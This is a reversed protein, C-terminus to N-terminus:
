PRRAKAMVGANQFYDSLYFRDLRSVNVGGYRRDSRSFLLSSSMQMFSQSQWADLLRLKFCFREWAALEQGHITIHGGVVRNTLNEIMNFDGVVCWDLNPLVNNLYSWLEIRESIQNPAYINLCGFEIDKTTLIVYQARGPIM